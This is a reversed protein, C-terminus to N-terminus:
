KKERYEKRGNLIKGIKNLKQRIEKSTQCSLHTIWKAEQMRTTVAKAGSETSVCM